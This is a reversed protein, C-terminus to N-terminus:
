VLIFVFFISFLILFDIIFLLNIIKNVFIEYLHWNKEVSDLVNKRILVIL